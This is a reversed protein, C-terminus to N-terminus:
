FPMLGLQFVRDVLWFAGLLLIPMSGVRILWWQRRERAKEDPARRILTLVPLVVLLILRLPAEEALPDRRDIPL